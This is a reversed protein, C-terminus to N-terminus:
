SAAATESAVAGYIRLRCPRGECDLDFQALNERGDGDLWGDPDYARPASLTGPQELRRTLNKGILRALEDVAAQLEDDDMADTDVSFLMAAAHRGVSQPCELAILGDWEGSLSIRSAYVPEDSEGDGAGPSDPRDLNLGLSTRWLDRCTELIEREDIRM